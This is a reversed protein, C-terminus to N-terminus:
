TRETQLLPRSHEQIMLLTGWCLGAAQGSINMLNKSSYSMNESVAADPELRSISAFNKPAGRAKGMILSSIIIENEDVVRLYSWQGYGIESTDTFNHLSINIIKCFNSPKICRGLSIKELNYLERKWAEWKECVRRISAQGFTIRCPATRATNIKGQPHITFSFRSSRSLFEVYTVYREPKKTEGESEGQFM